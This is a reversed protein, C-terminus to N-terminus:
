SKFCKEWNLKNWDSFEDVKNGGYEMKISSFTEFTHGYQFTLIEPKWRLSSMVSIDTLSYIFANDFPNDPLPSKKHM